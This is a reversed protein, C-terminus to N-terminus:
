GSERTSGSASSIARGTESGRSNTPASTWHRAAAAPVAVSWLRCIGSASDWAVNVQQRREGLAVLIREGEVVFGAKRSLAVWDSM